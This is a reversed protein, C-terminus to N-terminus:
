AGIRAGLGKLQWAVYAETVSEGFSPIKLEIAM